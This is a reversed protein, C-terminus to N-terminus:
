SCSRAGVCYYGESTIVSRFTLGVRIPFQTSTSGYNIYCGDETISMVSFNNFSGDGFTSYDITNIPEINSNPLIIRSYNGNFRIVKNSAMQTIYSYNSSPPCQVPSPGTNGPCIPPLNSGEPNFKNAYYFRVPSLANNMRVTYKQQSVEKILIRGLTDLILIDDGAGSDNIRSIDINVISLPTLNSTEYQTGPIGTTVNFPVLIPNSATGGKWEYIISTSPPRNFAVLYISGNTCADVLTLQIGAVVIINNILIEFENVFIDLECLGLVDDVLLVQQEIDGPVNFMKRPSIPGSTIQIIPQILTDIAGTIIVGQDVNDRMFTLKSLVPLSNCNNVCQNSDCSVESSNYCGPIAEIRGMGGICVTGDNANPSPFQCSCIDNNTCSVRTTNDICNQDGPCINISTCLQLLGRDTTVCTGTTDDNLCHCVLSGNCTAGQINICSGSCRSGTTGSVVGQDQCFGQSCNNSACDSNFVCPYADPNGALCEGNICFGSACDSATDCGTHTGAKCINYGGSGAVCVNGDDCPCFQDLAGVNGFVCRGSCFLPYTCESASNCLEDLKYKCTVTISDCHLNPNCKGTSCEAGISGVNNTIQTGLESKAAVITYIIIILFTLVLIGIVIFILLLVRNM